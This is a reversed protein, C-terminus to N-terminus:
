TLQHTLAIMILMGVIFSVTAVREHGDGHSEPIMERYVIYSLGLQWLCVM